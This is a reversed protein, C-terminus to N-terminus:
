EFQMSFISGRFLRHVKEFANKEAIVRFQLQTKPLNAFLASLRYEQGFLNYAVTIGYSESRNISVPNKEEAVVVTQQSGKPVSALVEARLAQIRAEDLNQPESLPTQQIEAQAQAMDPPIFRIRSADGSYTWGRPPEYTIRRGEEHFILQKFVVGELEREGTTPTFDIAAIAPLSAVAVFCLAILNVIASPSAGRRLCAKVEVPIM